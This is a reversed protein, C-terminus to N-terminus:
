SGRINQWELINDCDESPSGGCGSGCLSSLFFPSLKLRGNWPPAKEGEKRRPLSVRKDIYGRQWYMHFTLFFSSKPSFPFLFPLDICRYPSHIGGEEKDIRLNPFTVTRKGCFSGGGGGGNRVELCSMAQNIPHNPLLWEFRRGRIPSSPLGGRM